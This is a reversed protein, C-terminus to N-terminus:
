LETGKSTLTQEEGFYSCETTPTEAVTVKQLEPLLPKIKGYLYLCLNESTPKELGSIDNLYAHDLPALIPRVVMELDHYDRMWAQEENWPGYLTLTIVFSHGHLRSCPHSDPLHQLRRAAEIRYQVKIEFNKSM